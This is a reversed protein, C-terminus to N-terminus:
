NTKWNVALIAHYEYRIIGDAISPTLLLTFTSLIKMSLNCSIPSSCWVSANNAAAPGRSAIRPRKWGKHHILTSSYYLRDFNSKLKRKTMHGPNRTWCILGCNTWTWLQHFIAAAWSTASWHWARSRCLLWASISRCDHLLPHSLRCWWRWTQPSSTTQSGDSLVSAAPHDSNSWALRADYARSKNSQMSILHM